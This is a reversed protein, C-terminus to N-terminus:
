SGVVLASTDVSRVGKVKEAIMKVLDIADKNPLKGDLMVTGQKTTVGVKFAKAVSHALIESKVKTTIWTDSMAAEAKSAAVSPTM